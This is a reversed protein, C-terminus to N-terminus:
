FTSLEVRLDNIADDLKGYVSQVAETARRINVLGGDSLAEAVWKFEQMLADIKEFM